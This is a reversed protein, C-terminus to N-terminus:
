SAKVPHQRGVSVSLPGDFFLSDVYIPGRHRMLTTVLVLVYYEYYTCPDQMYSVCAAFVPLVTFLGKSSLVQTWVGGFM